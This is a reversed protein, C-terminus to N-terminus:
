CTILSPYFFIYLAGLAFVALLLLLIFLVNFRFLSFLKGSRPYTVIWTDDPRIEFNYIDDGKEVYKYPLFWKKRGIKVFGRKHPPYWESLAVALEGEIREVKLEKFSM